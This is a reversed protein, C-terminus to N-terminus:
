MPRMKLQTEVREFSPAGAACVVHALAVPLGQRDRGDQALLNAIRLHILTSSLGRNKLREPPNPTWDMMGNAKGSSFAAAIVPLTRLVRM